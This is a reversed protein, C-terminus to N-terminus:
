ESCSCEHLTRTAIYTLNNTYRTFGKQRAYLRLLCASKKRQVFFGYDAGSPSSVAFPRPGLADTSLMSSTDAALRDAIQENEGEEVLISSLHEVFVNHCSPDSLTTIEAMTACGVIASLVVAAGGATRM